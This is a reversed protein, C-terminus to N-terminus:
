TLQHESTARRVASKSSTTAGRDCRESCREGRECISAASSRSAPQRGGEPRIACCGAPGCSPSLSTIRSFAFSGGFRFLLGISCRFLQWTCSCPLGHWTTPQGAAPSCNPLGICSDNM